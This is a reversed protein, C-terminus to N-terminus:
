ESEEVYFFKYYILVFVSLIAALIIGLAAAAGV